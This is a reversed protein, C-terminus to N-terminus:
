EYGWKTLCREDSILGGILMFFLFLSINKMLLNLFLKKL